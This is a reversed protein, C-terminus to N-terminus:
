KEQSYKINIIVEKRMDSHNNGSGNKIKKIFSTKSLTPFFNELVYIFHLNFTLGGMSEIRRASAYAKVKFFSFWIKGRNCLKRGIMGDANVDDPDFGGTEYFVNKRVALLNTSSSFRRFPKPLHAFFCRVCNYLFFELKYVFSTDYPIGPGAVALLNPDRFKIATNYLLTDPFIVDAGTFLLIEGIAIEAAKNRSPFEKVGPLLLVKTGFANSIAVTEDTSGGDV